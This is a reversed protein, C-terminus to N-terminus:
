ETPENVLFTRVFGSTMISAVIHSCKPCYGEEREKGGPVNMPTEVVKVTAGCKECVKNFEQSM